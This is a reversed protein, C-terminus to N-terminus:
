SPRRWMFTIPVGPGVDAEGTVEFGHREYFPVNRPNSSELYCALRHQDAHALGPGLLAGGLGQGQREPRLGLVALYLHEDRPHRKEIELLGEAVQQGHRLGTGRVSRLAVWLDERLSTRWGNPPDWLAAGAGPTRWAMGTATSRRTHLDFFWRSHRRRKAPDPFVYTFVPDDM